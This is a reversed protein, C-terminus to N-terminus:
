RLVYHRIDHEIAAASAYPGAHDYVMKGSANFYVTQPYYIAAGITRAISEHPDTYSPYSVPFRRLFAAASGNGDKGDLGLFAVRRGYKVSAQQFAPFETQCPGCWSAWKNVVVPYGKLATLRAHFAAPGGGLLRSAQRHLSALAPPSDKFSAQQVGAAPASNHPQAAGCGSLVACVMLPAPLLILLRV